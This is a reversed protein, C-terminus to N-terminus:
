EKRKINQAEKKVAKEGVLSFYESSEKSIEKEVEGRQNEPKGRIHGKFIGKRRSSTRLIHEERTKKIVRKEEDLQLRKSCVRKKKPLLGQTEGKKVITTGKGSKRISDRKSIQLYFESRQGCADGKSPRDTQVEKKCIKARRSKKKQSEGCRTSRTERPRKTQLKESKLRREGTNRKKL